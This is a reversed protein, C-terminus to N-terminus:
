VALLLSRAHEVVQRLHEEDVPKLLYDIAGAARAAVAYQHYATVVAVMPAPLGSLSALVELGDMVPMQLDLLVLDPRFAYIKDIAERGNAAEGAIEIDPLIELGERLIRRAVPEDDVILVRL